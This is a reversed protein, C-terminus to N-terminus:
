CCLRIALFVIHTGTPFFSPLPLTRRNGRKFGNAIIRERYSPSALPSSTLVAPLFLPRLLRSCCTSARTAPLITHENARLHDFRITNRRLHHQSYFFAVKLLAETARCSNTAGYPRRGSSRRSFERPGAKHDPTFPSITALHEFWATDIGRYVAIAEREQSQKFLEHCNRKRKRGGPM